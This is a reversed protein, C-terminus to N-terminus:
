TFMFSIVSSTASWYTSIINTKSPSSGNGIISVIILNASKNIPNQLILFSYLDVNIALLKSIKVFASTTIFIIQTKVYKEKKFLSMM